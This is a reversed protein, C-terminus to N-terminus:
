IILKHVLLWGNFFPTSRGLIHPVLKFGQPMNRTVASTCLSCDSPLVHVSGLFLPIDMGMMARLWWRHHVDDAWNIPIDIYSLGYIGYM